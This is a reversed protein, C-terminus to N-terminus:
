RVDAEDRVHRVPEAEPAPTLDFMPPLQASRAVGPAVIINSWIGLDRISPANDTAKVHRRGGALARL